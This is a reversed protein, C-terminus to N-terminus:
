WPSIVGVVRSPPHAPYRSLSEFTWPDYPHGYPRGYFPFDNNGYGSYLRAPLPYPALYYSYPPLYIGGALVPASGYSPLAYSGAAPVASTSQVVVPGSSVYTQATVSRTSISALLAALIMVFPRPRM